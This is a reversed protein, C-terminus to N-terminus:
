AIAVAVFSCAHLQEAKDASEINASICMANNKTCMDQVFWNQGVKRGTGRAGPPTNLGLM